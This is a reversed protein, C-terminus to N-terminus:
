LEWCSLDPLIFTPQINSDKLDSEQSVGTLVLLSDVGALQGALIDTELNDGIILCDERELGMSALAGDIIPRHPKGFVKASRQSAYKLFATIAGSSPQFGSTMPILRDENTVLFEAGQLLLNVAKTLIEYDFHRSLGQVLVSADIQDTITFGAQVLEQKLADEGIVFLKENKSKSKLYAMLAMTSSYIKDESLKLQFQRELFDCLEKPSRTANNTLLRFDIKQDMLTRVFALATPIGKDGFYLTGDLDILYGQYSPGKIM